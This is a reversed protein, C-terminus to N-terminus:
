PHSPPLAPAGVRGSGSGSDNLIAGFHGRSQEYIADFLDGIRTGRFDFGSGLGESALLRTRHGQFLFLHGTGLHKVLIFSLGNCHSHATHWSIQTPSLKVTNSKTTKLELWVPMGDYMAYVDPM